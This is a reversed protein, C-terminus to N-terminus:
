MVLSITKGMTLDQGTIITKPKKASMVRLFALCEPGGAQRCAFEWALKPCIGSDDILDLEHAQVNKIKRQLSLMNFLKSPALPYNHKAEFSVVQYKGHQQGTARKGVHSSRSTVYGRVTNKNMFEKRISFGVVGVYDIYYKYADEENEFKLGLKMVLRSKASPTCLIIM